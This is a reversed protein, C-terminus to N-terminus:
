RKGAQMTGVTIGKAKSLELVWSVYITMNKVSEIERLWHAMFQTCLRKQPQCEQASKLSRQINPGAVYDNSCM